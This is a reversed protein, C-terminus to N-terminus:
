WGGPEVPNEPEEGQLVRRVDTAVTENLDQHSDASYWAAHPTLVVDDRELLPSGTPPETEMVDLGAGFIEREVLADYLAEEDVIGGRGVNVVIAHDALREFAEADFMGRTEETLPAHITVADSRDLLEDFEVLEADYEDIVQEDVYPDYVVLDLDFGATLDALRQAITGFSVVGLTSGYFRPFERNPMWSWDGDKVDRDYEVLTRRCALLLSFAHTAVESMSYSPANVVTVGAEHCAEVDVNDFGTGARAVIQLRDLQEVLERSVGTNVDLILAEPNADVIAATDGTSIAVLEHDIQELQESIVAPKIFPTDSIAITTTM